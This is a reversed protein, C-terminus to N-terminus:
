PKRVSSYGCDETCLTVIGRWSTQVEGVKASGSMRQERLSALGCQPCSAPNPKGWPTAPDLEGIVKLILAAVLVLVIIGVVLVVIGAVLAVPHSAQALKVAQQYDQSPGGFEECIDGPSMRAGNCNPVAHPNGPYVVFIMTLSFGLIVTLGLVLVGLLLLIGATRSKGSRRWERQRLAKDILQQTYDVTKAPMCLRERRGAQRFIKALAAPKRGDRRKM